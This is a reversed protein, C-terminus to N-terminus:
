LPREQDGLMYKGEVRVQGKREIRNIQKVDKDSQSLRIQKSTKKSKMCTIRLHSSWSAVATFGTILASGPGQYSSLVCDNPMYHEKCGM